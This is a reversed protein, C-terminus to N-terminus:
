FYKLCLNTIKGYQKDRQMRLNLDNIQPEESCVIQVRVSSDTQRYRFYVYIFKRVIQVSLYLPILQKCGIM